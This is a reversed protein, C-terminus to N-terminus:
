GCLTEDLTPRSLRCDSGGSRHVFHVSVSEVFQPGSVVELRRAQALGPLPGARREPGAIVVGQALYKGLIGVQFATEPDAFTQQILVGIQGPGPRDSCSRGMAQM